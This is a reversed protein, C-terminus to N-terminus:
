NNKSGDLIWLRIAEIEPQSLPNSAQPMRDGQNQGPSTIKIYLFSSDPSNPKVRFFSPSNNKDELSRVYVLQEYSMGSMLNLGAKASSGHCSQLACNSFIIAQISSLKPEIIKPQVTEEESSCGAVGALFCIILLPRLFSRDKRPTGCNPVVFNRKKLGAELPIQRRKCEAYAANWIASCFAPCDKKEILIAEGYFPECHCHNKTKSIVELLKRMLSDSISWKEQKFM